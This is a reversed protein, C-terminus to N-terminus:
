DKWENLGPTPDPPPIKATKANGDAGAGGEMANVIVKEPDEEPQLREGLKDLLSATSQCRRPTLVVLRTLSSLKYTLAM